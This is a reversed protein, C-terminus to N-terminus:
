GCQCYATEHRNAANLCFSTLSGEEAAARYTAAHTWLSHRNAHLRMAMEATLRAAQAPM